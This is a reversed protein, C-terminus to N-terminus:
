VQGEVADPSTEPLRPPEVRRSFRKLHALRHELTEKRAKIKEELTAEVKQHMDRLENDSLKDLDNRAM